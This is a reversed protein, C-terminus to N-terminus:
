RRAKLSGAGGLAMEVRAGAPARGAAYAFCAGGRNRVGSCLQRAGSGDLGAAAVRWYSRGNVVAPIITLRYNRLEANRATYIGIARRANSESSFSGLQVMHTGSRPAAVAQRHPRARDAARPAQPTRSVPIPQVVPQSVFGPQADARAFAAAFGSPVDASPAPAASAPASSVPLPSARDVPPLESAATQVPADAPTAAAAM